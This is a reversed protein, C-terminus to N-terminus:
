VQVKRMWRPSTTKDLVAAVVKSAGGLKETQEKLQQLAWDKGMLDVGTTDVSDIHVGGRRAVAMVGLLHTRSANDWGDITLLM